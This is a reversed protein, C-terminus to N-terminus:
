KEERSLPSKTRAQSQHLEAHPQTLGVTGSRTQLSPPLHSSPPLPHSHTQPSKHFVHSSSSSRLPLSSLLFCYTVPLSLTLALYLLQPTSLKFLHFSPHLPFADHLPHTRFYGSCLLSKRHDNFFWGVSENWYFCWILFPVHWSLQQVWGQTSHPILPLTSCLNAFSALTSSEVPPLSLLPWVHPSSMVSLLLIPPRLSLTNVSLYSSFRFTFLDLFFFSPTLDLFTDWTHFLFPAAEM